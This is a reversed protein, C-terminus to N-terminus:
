LCCDQHISCLFLIFFTFLAFSLIIYFPPFFLYFYKNVKRRQTYSIFPLNVKRYFVKCVCVYIFALMRASLYGHNRLSKLLLVLLCSYAPYTDTFLYIFIVLNAQNKVPKRERTGLSVLNVSVVMSSSSAKFPRRM